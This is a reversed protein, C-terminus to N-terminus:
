GPSGLLSMAALTGALAVPITVTPIVTASFRRMFLAIVLVVLMTAIGITHQVDAISTRILTTRDFVM